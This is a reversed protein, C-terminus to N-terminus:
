TMMTYIINFDFLPRNACTITFKENEVKINDDIAAELAVQKSQRSAPWAEFLCGEEVDADEVVYQWLNGSGTWDLMLLSIEKQIPVKTIEDMVDDTIKFKNGNVVELGGGNAAEYVDILDSLNIDFTAGGQMTLTLIKTVGDYVASSLFNDVPINIVKDASGDIFSFTLDGTTGDYEVDDVLKPNINGSGIIAESFVTKFSPKNTVEGTSYDVSSKWALSGFSSFWKKLKGFITHTEDGSAINELTAAEEFEIPGRAYAAAALAEETADEAAEIAEHVSAAAANAADASADARDAAANASSAAANASSAAANASSAAANASSAAANASSAAANASSAAANAADASADARDAATKVFELGVKVSRNLADVGITYLGVLSQVLPLESIKIKKIAM